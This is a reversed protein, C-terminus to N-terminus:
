SRKTRAPQLMGSLFIDTFAAAAARDDITLLKGKPDFLERVQAQNVVMGLFARAAAKPNVPRFVGDDIRQAIYDALFSFHEAVQTEFFMRSLEHGELASYLLLRMFTGDQHHFTLIGQALGFFVARDDKRQRAEEHFRNIWERGEEMKDDIIASYLDNKTPFHRFIIAENVGAALAIEKTTTGKFGKRAFWEMATRVIQRRRDPASMRQPHKRRHSATAATMVM